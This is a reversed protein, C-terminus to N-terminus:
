AYIGELIARQLHAISFILYRIRELFEDSEAAFIEDNSAMLALIFLVMPHSSYKSKENVNSRLRSMVICEYTLDWATIAM